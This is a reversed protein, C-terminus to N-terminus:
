EHYRISEELLMWQFLELVRYADLKIQNCPNSVIAGIVQKTKKSPPTREDKKKRDPLVHILLDVLEERSPKTQLDFCRVLFDFVSDINFVKNVFKDGDTPLRRSKLGLKIAKHATENRSVLRDVIGGIVFINNPQMVDDGSLEEDADPSMIIVREKADAIVSELLESTSQMVWESGGQKRIRESLGEDVSVVHMVTHDPHQRLHSYCQQIQVALSTKEFDTMIHGFSCDIIIKRSSEPNVLLSRLKEAAERNRELREKKPVKHGTMGVICSDFLRM